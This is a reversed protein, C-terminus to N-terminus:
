PRGRGQGGDLLTFGQAAFDADFAFARSVGEARMLAFSTWDVLSVRSRSARFAAMATGHLDAGVWRITVLPLVDDVLRDVAPWGLRRHVLAVSETIVLAHTLLSEDASALQGLISAANGHEPDSADLLAYLASTDVFVTV